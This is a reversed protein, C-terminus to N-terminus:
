FFAKKLCPNEFQAARNQLRKESWSIRDQFIKDITWSNLTLHWVQQITNVDISSGGCM